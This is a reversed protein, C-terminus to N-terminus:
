IIGVKSAYELDLMATHVYHQLEMLLDFGSDNQTSPFKGVRDALAKAEREIKALDNLIALNYSDAGITFDM